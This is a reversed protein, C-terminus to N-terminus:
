CVSVALFRFRDGPDGPIDSYDQWHLCYSGEIRISSERGKKTGESTHAAWNLEGSIERGEHLRFDSDVTDRSRPPNWYSPDNTLLVAHGVECFDPMSRM